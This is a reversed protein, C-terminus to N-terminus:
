YSKTIILSLPKSKKPWGTYHYPQWTGACDPKIVIQGTLITLVFRARMNETKKQQLSCVFVFLKHADHLRKILAVWDSELYWLSINAPQQKM